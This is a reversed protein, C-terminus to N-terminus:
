RHKKSRRLGYIAPDKPFKTSLVKVEDRDYKTLPMNKLTCNPDAIYWPQAEYWRQVVTDKFVFGYSAYIDYLRPQTRQSNRYDDGLEDLYRFRDFLRVALNSTPRYSTTHFQIETDIVRIALDGIRLYEDSTDSQDKALLQPAFAGIGVLVPTPLDKVGDIICVVNRTPTVSCDFTDIVQGAWYKATTLTYYFESLVGIGMSLRQRYAHTVVNLGPTFTMTSLFVHEPGGANPDITEDDKRIKIPQRLKCTDCTREFLRHAVLAGNVQSKFDSIAPRNYDDIGYDGYGRPVVFGVPLTVSTDDPNWFHFRVHVEAESENYSTNAVRQMFRVTLWEHHIRVRTPKLPEDIGSCGYFVGDNAESTTTCAVFIFLLRLYLLRMQNSRIPPTVIVTPTRVFITFIPQV